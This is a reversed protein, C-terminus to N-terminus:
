RRVHVDDPANAARLLAKQCSASNTTGPSYVSWPLRLRDRYGPQAPMVRHLEGGVKELAEHMSLLVYNAHVTTSVLDDIAALADDSDGTHLQCVIVGANLLIDNEISSNTERWQLAHDLLEEFQGSRYPRNTLNNQIAGPQRPTATRSPPSNREPVPLYRRIVTTDVM